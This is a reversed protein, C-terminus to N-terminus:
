MNRCDVAMMLFYCRFSVNNLYRIFGNTLQYMKSKFNTVPKESGKFTYHM